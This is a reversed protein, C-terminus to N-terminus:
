RPQRCPSDYIITVADHWSSNSSGRDRWTSQCGKSQWSNSSGDRGAILAAMEALVTLDMVFAWAWRGFAAARRRAEETGGDSAAAKEVVTPLAAELV